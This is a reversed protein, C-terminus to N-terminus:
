EIALLTLTPRTLRPVMDYANLPEFPALSSQGRGHPTLGGCVLIVVVSLLMCSVHVFIHIYVYKNNTKYYYNYM